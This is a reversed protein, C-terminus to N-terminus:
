SEGGGIVACELSQINHSLPTETSHDDHQDPGFYSPDSAHGSEVSRIM